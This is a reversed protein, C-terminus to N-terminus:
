KIEELEKKIDDVFRGLALAGRDDGGIDVVAYKSKDHVMKYSASNM